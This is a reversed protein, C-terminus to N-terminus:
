YTRFYGQDTYPKSFQAACALLALLENVMLIIVIRFDTLYLLMYVCLCYIRQFSSLCM